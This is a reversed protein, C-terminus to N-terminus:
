EWAMSQFVLKKKLDLLQGSHGIITKEGIGAANDRIEIKSKSIYISIKLKYSSGHLSKLKPKNDIYSQISNDVFEGIAFWAKYNISSLISLYGVSPAINVKDKKM